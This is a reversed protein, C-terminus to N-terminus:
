SINNKNYVDQLEELQIRKYSGTDSEILKKM